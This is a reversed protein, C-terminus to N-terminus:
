RMEEYEGDLANKNAEASSLPITEYQESHAINAWSCAVCALAIRASFCQEIRNYM